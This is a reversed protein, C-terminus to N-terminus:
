LAAIMARQADWDAPLEHTKCRESTLGIPQTGEVISQVIDPALFTLGIMHQVRRASTGSQRAIAAFTAGAKLHEFWAHARAVNRVLAEDRRAHVTEGLVLRTEVGRKRLTFPHESVLCALDIRELAVGLRDALAERDLRIAVTGPALDAREVLTLLDADDVSSLGGLTKALAHM